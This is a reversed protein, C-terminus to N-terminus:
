RLVETLVDGPTVRPRTATRTTTVPPAVYKYYALSPWSKTGLMTALATRTKIPGDVKNLLM